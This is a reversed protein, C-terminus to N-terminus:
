ALPFVESFEALNSLVEQHLPDLLNILHFLEQPQDFTVITFPHLFFVQKLLDGLTHDVPSLPHGTLTKVWQIHPIVYSLSSLKEDILVTHKM